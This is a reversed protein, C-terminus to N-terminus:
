KCSVIKGPISIDTSSHKKHYHDRTANNFDSKKIILARNQVNSIFIASSEQANLSLSCYDYRSVFDKDFAIKLITENFEKSLGFRAMSTYSSFAIAFLSASSIIKLIILIAPWIGDKNPETNFIFLFLAVELFLAYVLIPISLYGAYRLFIGASLAFPFNGADIGFAANLLSATESKANWIMAASISFFFFRFAHSSTIRKLAKFKLTWYILSSLFIVTVFFFITLKEFYNTNSSADVAWIGFGLIIPMYINDIRNQAKNIPQIIEKTKCKLATLNEAIFDWKGYILTTLMILPIYPAALIVVPTIVSYLSIKKIYNM